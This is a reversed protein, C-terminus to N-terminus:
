HLSNCFCLHCVFRNATPLALPLPEVAGWAAIQEATLKERAFATGYWRERQTAVGEFDQSVEYLSRTHLVHAFHAQRGNM